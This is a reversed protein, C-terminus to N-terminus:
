LVPAAADPLIARAPERRRREVSAAADARKACAPTVSILITYYDDRIHVRHVTRCADRVAVDVVRGTFAHWYVESPSLTDPNTDLLYIANDSWSLAQFASSSATSTM